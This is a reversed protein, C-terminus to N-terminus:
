KRKYFLYGAGGCILVIGLVLTVITRSSATDPTNITQIEGINPVTNNTKNDSGATIKSYIILNNSDTDSNLTLKTPDSQTGIEQILYNGFPVNEFEAIGNENTKVDKIINGTIDVAQEKEETLLRLTTEPVIENTSSDKKQLKINSYPINEMTITKTDQDVVKKSCSEEKYGEPVNETKIYYTGNSLNFVAQGEETTKNAILDNCEADSYLSVKVDDLVYGTYTDVEKVLFQNNSVEKNIITTELKNSINICSTGYYDDPYIEEKLYINKNDNIDITVTGSSDTEINTLKNGKEDKFINQCDSDEYIGYVAGPVINGKEDTTKVIIKDQESNTFNISEGSLVKICNRIAAFNNISNEQKAYYTGDNLNEFVTEGQTNTTKETSATNTCSSDSYLKYKLGPIGSNSTDIANIKITYKKDVIQEWKAYLTMNSAPMKDFTYNETLAANKYWGKFIYGTRTPNAPPTIAKGAESKIQNVSSGGNSNFTITYVEPVPEKNKYWKAYLTINNAPMIDFTFRSTLESNRYWGMFTYGTRTPNTPKSITKGAQSKIQNVSSGGNSNFTITYTPPTTIVPKTTTTKKTTTTTKKTTTTTKKTTTTPKKTTTQAEYVVSISHVAKVSSFKYSNSNTNTVNKGDVIVSKLRYGSKPTYSVTYDKGWNINKTASINGNQVSTTIKFSDAYDFNKYRTIVGIKYNSARTYNIIHSKTLSLKSGVSYFYYKKNKYEKFVMTHNYTQAGVIDGPKVAGSSVLSSISKNVNQKTTFRSDSTLVKKDSGNVKGNGLYWSKESQKIMGKEIMTWTVYDVCNLVKNKEKVAAAFSSSRKSNRYKFNNKDLREAMNDLADLWEHYNMKTAAEANPVFVCSLGIIVIIIFILIKRKKNM